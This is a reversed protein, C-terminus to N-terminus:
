SDVERAPQHDGRGSDSVIVFTPLLSPWPHLSIQVALLCEALLGLRVKSNV